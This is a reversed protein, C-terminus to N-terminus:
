RVVANLAGMKLAQIKRSKIKMEKGHQSYSNKIDVSIFAIRDNLFAIFVYIFRQQPKM